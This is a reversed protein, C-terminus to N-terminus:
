DRGRRKKGRYELEEFHNRVTQYIQELFGKIDTNQLKLAKLIAFDLNKRPEWGIQNKLSPLKFKRLNDFVQIIEQKDEEPIVSFDLFLRDEQYDVIQLRGFAGGIERRVSLFLLIFITSSMWAAVLKATKQDCDIIYFNKSATLLDDTYHVITGTTTIGFKDLVFLHGFPKKSELQRNVHHIWDEGFRRQAVQWIPSRDIIYNQPVLKQHQKKVRLVFHKVIPTIDSNYLRPKRFAQLLIKRPFLCSIGKKKNIFQITEDTEEGRSWDQNPLFFFEPGYMEFGRIIRLNLSSAHVLKTNSRLTESLSYLPTYELFRIWNWSQRLQQLSVQHFSISSDSEPNEWIKQAISRYNEASLEVKLSIFPISKEPLENKKLKEAVMIVERFESGESFAKDKSTSLIFHIKYKSLLFEKLGQSYKSYFTSAPLITAIQGGPALVSDALFLAFVHLGMQPSMYEQYEKCVNELTRLYQGNLRLYRTFPPNMIVVHPKETNKELNFMTILNKFADGVYGTLKPQLKSQRYTFLLRLLSIYAALDWLENFTIELDTNTEKEDIVATLLRGSGSFPDLIRIPDRNIALYALFRASLTSTFNAALAKRIEHPLMNQILSGLNDNIVHSSLNLRSFRDKYEIGLNDLIRIDTKLRNTLNTDLHIGNKKIKKMLSDFSLNNDKKSEIEDTLLWYIMSALLIRFVTNKETIDPDEFCKIKFYENLYSFGELMQNNLDFKEKIEDFYTRLEEELQKITHQTKNM